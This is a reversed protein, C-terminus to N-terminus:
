PASRARIAAAIAVSQEYAALDPGSDSGGYDEAALDCLAACAEREAEVAVRTIPSLRLPLADAPMPAGAPTTAAREADLLACLRRVAAHAYFVRPSTVDGLDYVDEGEDGDDQLRQKVDRLSDGRLLDAAAAGWRHVDGDAPPAYGDGLQAALQGLVTLLHLWARDSEAHEGDEGDDLDFDDAHYDAVNEEIRDAARQLLTAAAVRPESCEMPLKMGAQAKGAVYSSDSDAIWRLLGDVSRDDTYGAFLVTEVDGHVLLRGGYLAVIEALFISDWSGDERRQLLWRGDERRRIQHHAFAETAMTALMRNHQAAIMLEDV